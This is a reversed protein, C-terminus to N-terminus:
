DPVRGPGVSGQGTGEGHEGYVAYMKVPGELLEPLPFAWVVTRGDLRVKGNTMTVEDPCTLAYTFEYDALESTDEVDMNLSCTQTFTTTEATEVLSFVQTMKDGATTVDKVAFVGRGNLDTVNEFDIYYTAESLASEEEAPVVVEIDRVKIGPGLYEDEIEKETFSLRPAGYEGTPDHSEYHIGVTGSGDEKLVLEQDYNICGAALVAAVALGSLVKLKKM